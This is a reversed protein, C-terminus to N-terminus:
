GQTPHRDAGETRLAIPFLQESPRHGNHVSRSTQSFMWRRYVQRMGGGPFGSRGASEPPTARTKADFRSGPRRTSHYVDQGM